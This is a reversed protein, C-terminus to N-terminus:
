PWIKRLASAFPMFVLYEKSIRYEQLPHRKAQYFVWNHLTLLLVKAIKRCKLSVRGHACVDCVLGDSDEALIIDGWTEPDIGYLHAKVKIRKGSV